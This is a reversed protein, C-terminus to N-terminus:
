GIIGLSQARQVAVLRDHCGLKRYANELHKRVTRPSIRLLRAVAEATLGAAVRGLVQVERETLGLREAASPDPPAPLGDTRDLLALMEQLAAAVEVDRDTFDTGSRNLAWGRVGEPCPRATLVTLQHEGGLPRLFDVYARNALLEQRSAVDSLRRPGDDSRSGGLYSRTMPHEGAVERLGAIIGPVDDDRGPVLVVEVTGPLEVANWGVVEAPILRLLMEGAARLYAGRDPLGGLEWGLGLAAQEASRDPEARM